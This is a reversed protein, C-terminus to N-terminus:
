TTADTPLPPLEDFKEHKLMEFIQEAYDDNAPADTKMGALYNRYTTLHERLFFSMMDADGRRRVDMYRRASLLVATRQVIGPTFGGTSSRYAPPTDLETVISM